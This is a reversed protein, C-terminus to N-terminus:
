HAKKETKRGKKGEGRKRKKKWGEGVKKKEEV